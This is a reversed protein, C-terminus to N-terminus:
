KNEGWLPLFNEKNLVTDKTGLIAGPVCFVIVLYKLSQTFLTPSLAWLFCFEVEKSPFHYVLLHLNM